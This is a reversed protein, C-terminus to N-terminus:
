WGEKEIGTRLGRGIPLFADVARLGTILGTDVKGRLSIRTGRKVLSTYPRLSVQGFFLFWGSTTSPSFTFVHILVVIVAPGLLLSALLIWVVLNFLLVTGLALYSLLRFTYSAYNSSVSTSLSFIIM